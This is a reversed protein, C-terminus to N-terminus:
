DDKKRKVLNYIEEHIDEISKMQNGNNCEIKDWSLYDAIFIASEYVKKMFTLDREHIDNTVGENQKRSKRLETVLDFPATLFIVNDPEKIGMKNYEFDIVYNIFKKKEEIDEILASQYILSSTTYRDLLVIKGENYLKKLNTHWTIARDLAYLNNIFYPSLESPQGYEGKLYKEVAVGHYTGYSPFHHNAIKIGDNELRSVLMSYQTSKGIGDCAGEIVILKGETKNSINNDNSEKKM